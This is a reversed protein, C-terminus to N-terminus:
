KEPFAKRTARLLRYTKFYLYIVPIIFLIFGLIGLETLLQLYINHPHSGEDTNILGLSNNIFEKWGIGFIPNDNFLYWSREYLTLRGSSIDEGEIVGSITADIENVFGMIPSDDSLEVSTILLFAIFIAALGGATLKLANKIFTKNNLTFIITILAAVILFLLHARKATLLLGILLVILYSILVIKTSLKTKWNSFIIIGIGSVIYGALHATQNTFGTYSNGRLLKLISSQESQTFLPLIHSLYVDTFLYQFIASLAYIIGLIKIWKLPYEFLKMDVKVLLLFLIASAYILIDILNASTILNNLVINLVFLSLFLIWMIDVTTIMVGRKSIIFNSFLLTVISLMLVILGIEFPFLFSKLTSFYFTFILMGIMTMNVQINLVSGKGSQHTFDRIRDMAARRYKFEFLTLRRQEVLIM